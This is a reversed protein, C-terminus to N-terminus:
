VIMSLLSVLILNKQIDYAYVVNNLTMEKKYTMKLVM